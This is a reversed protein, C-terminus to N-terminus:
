MVVDVCRATFANQLVVIAAVYQVVMVTHVL